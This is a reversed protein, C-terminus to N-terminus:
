KKQANEKILETLEKILAQYTPATHDVVVNWRGWGYVVNFIERAKDEVTPKDDDPDPAINDYEGLDRYNQYNDM